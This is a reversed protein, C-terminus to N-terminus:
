LCPFSLLEDLKCAFGYTLMKNEDLERKLGSIEAQLKANEYKLQNFQVAYDASSDM